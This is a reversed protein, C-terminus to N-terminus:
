IYCEDPTCPKIRWIEDAYQKITNDSSFHGSMAINTLSMASWVDKQRYLRDVKEQAEIYSAFDAAVFFEDNYDLLAHLISSFDAQAANPFLSGGQLQAVIRSLRPDRAIVERANYRGGAALDLVEKVSMGFLIFNDDGVLRRIEINAGDDTGVTIAGNMMFKMNSTGSAEKGATSIQESVDSAPFIHEAIGVNYNELFVIKLKENVRPDNNILATLESLYKIITKAFYYSPAAKGSFIFTRPIMDFGPNELLLNYLHQIRLANMLQRKYAHIRKVQVDFISYPDVIIGNHQEIYKALRLKDLRKIDRLREQLASDNRFKALERLETPDKKWKDEITDCIMGALDPNAGLLWRRHTIGNTKNNFKEPYFDCLDKMVMNKLLETHVEAVGNVSFSGVVALNAMKVKNDSLIAMYEIKGHDGPYRQELEMRFRRDIEQVIMYVRPLLPQFVEVPWTELAEPM